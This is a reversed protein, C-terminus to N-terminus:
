TGGTTRRYHRASKVRAGCTDMSCWRRTGNRSTDCFWLVCDPHACRRVRDPREALLAVGSAAARWAPLWAPAVDVREDRRGAALALRWTGRALVANLADEASADRRELVARLASRAHRLPADVLDPPGPLDHEALWTVLAGPEDFLDVPAGREVWLTDVLDLPLPEGVLPRRLM